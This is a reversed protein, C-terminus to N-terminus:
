DKVARFPNSTIHKRAYRNMLALADPGLSQAYALAVRWHAWVVEDSVAVSGDAESDIFARNENLWDHPKIGDPSSRWLDTLSIRDGRERIFVGNRFILKVM